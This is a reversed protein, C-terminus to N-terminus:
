EMVKRYVIDGMKKNVGFKRWIEEIKRRGIKDSRLCMMEMHDLKHKENM